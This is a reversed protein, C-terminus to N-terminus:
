ETVQKLYYIDSYNLGLDIQKKRSYPKTDNVSVLMPKHINDIRVALHQNNMDNVVSTIEATFCIDCSDDSIKVSDSKFAIHSCYINDNNICFGFETKTNDIIRSVNDFGCLLADTYHKPSNVVDTISRTQTSKGNELICISDCLRFVENNDHSVIFVEGDYNNITNLLDLELSIKLQSDLASFPEDLLLIEPKRSLARALAVRQQQGGSLQHPYLLAVENLNFKELYSNCIINRENRSYKRLACMINDRVNMDPFLAYNQPLYGINRKQPKINIRKNSDFLVRNNLIIKGSDPTMIGAICKLTISKGSGSVGFLSTTKRNTDFKIELVFDGLKKKIDVYLAM